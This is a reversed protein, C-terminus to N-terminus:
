EGGRSQERATEVADSSDEVKDIIAQLNNKCLEALVAAEGIEQTTAHNLMRKRVLGDMSIQLEKIFAKLETWGPQESLHSLHGEEPVIGLKEAEEQAKKLPAFYDPKIAQRM